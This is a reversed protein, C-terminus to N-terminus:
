IVELTKLPADDGASVVAHLGPLIVPKPGFTRPFRMRLLKFLKPTDHQGRPVQSFLTDLWGLYGILAEHADIANQPHQCPPSLAMGQSLRLHEVEHPPQRVTSPLFEVLVAGLVQFQLGEM